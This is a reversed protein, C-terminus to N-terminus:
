LTLELQQINQYDDPVKAGDPKKFELGYTRKYREGAYHVITIDKPEIEPFDNKALDYLDLLHDLTKGYTDTRIVCHKKTQEKIIKM